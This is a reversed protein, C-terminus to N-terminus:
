PLERLVARVPAADLDALKLPLAILEYDGASVDDLVLGELISLGHRRVAHHADMTKSNQPDLSPTDIGILVVGSRALLEITAPAVATFGDDWRAQPAQRYTRLIIRTIGPALHPQVHPPEILPRVGVAEIVRAPGLYRRVDVGGMRAGTDDYHFPADAHAGTHTSMTFKSVNVPVGPGMAWTRQESYETDGPWVPIGTRIPPSIDWIRMPAVM